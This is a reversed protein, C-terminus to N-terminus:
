IPEVFPDHHFYGFDEELVIVDFDGVGAAGELTDGFAFVVPLTVVFGHREALQSHVAGGYGHEAVVDEFVVPHVHGVRRARV